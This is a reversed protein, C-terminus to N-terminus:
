SSPSLNRIITSLAQGIPKVHPQMMMSGHTGATHIVRIQGEMICGSWGLFPASDHSAEALFLYVPIPIRQASYMSAALRFIYSRIFVQRLQTDTSDILHLPLLSMRRVDALLSDFEITASKSILETFALGQEEGMGPELYGIDLQEMLMEERDDITVQDLEAIRKLSPHSTDLMGVFEVEEGAGILQLAIEYALLGGFSYGAIRYPGKPRATRIMRVMRRALAEVTRLQPEDTSQPPLGYVPIDPDLYQSLTRAYFIYGTCEHVLFLPSEPGGKRICIVEDSSSHDGCSKIREALLKPTPYEFLDTVLIILGTQALLNVVRLILLSHGGLEFFNDHRGVRELKLLEEWLAALTEEVEGVPAEYERMVYAGAEPEPLGKRDLKGNPTLPLSELRVYAAPVMYEPLKALLHTRLAEAGVGGEAQEASTYYAVLRKDGPREERAMVVAERVAEHELLRAEIERLEIRFGRIKIQHDNRGLFEIAGDALYRGVDGTRYMRAGPQETFPDAVFREATLGARNLYGHGLGEGGIYIEGRVGVPVPEGEEDLLYIRTNGIPRGIPIRMAGEEVEKVEHTTAFTTSESPGYCHVIREPPNARLIEKVARPDVVDGGTLLYRLRPIIMRLEEPYAGLLGAVLHLVTVEARLLQSGLAAPNLMTEKPIVVLSGGHLLTAWVELTAADFAPNSNFAVRDEANFDAYGCNIVLRLIARHPVMVGKPKGTSGSTYIVYGAQESDVALRLNGSPVESLRTEDLNVGRERLAAALPESSSTLIVRAECEEVIWVQREEPFTSDIPVYAAGCKLVALQAVVLSISRELMIGVRSGPVVGLLRLYNGLRNARENLERYSVKLEGDEVAIADPVKEVQEEFLEHVCRERPYEAETENWEYLVKRRERETLIDISRVRRKPERELAEVLSALGIHMYECIRKPEIPSQVQSTLRFGEGLDDVSLTCPYNTREEGSLVRIGEWARRQEESSETGEGASHRYNLLTSFLPSPAPVGSCRQALALSAHEHRLLEALQLHVGRVSEEVSEVGVRIRVPLTNIFLGMVQDAGQGGQMRGLLLTGFVVDDLGSVGALVRGWAVHFLSAASVGLRRARERVRRGLEADVELRAEEIETGDGRVDLMEFPATPEEVEGLLRRFYAEHEERSVGLRAQAVLNRFPLPKPLGDAKGLLHAEIEKEMVEQTGHDMTLHHQLETLLWRGNARDYALYVRQLPARRVDIRYRRPHFREYMQEAVDSGAADLEVEEVMLPAKRWVVQVPEPLGEWMVATRLIDHRDIVAQMAELYADLRARSDFSMQVGIVYPDSEGGMLHHFLIGEQLPALPYIDQINAAGGPVGSILGEMEEASLRVLPLMEPTIATCGSPIRNPPAEIADAQPGVASALEALTSTAFLARVDVQLGARRMREALTVALLSHGGLGFFNDHRGVGELKLLEEWLAALTEEVEGVPAEYERMVYAGAEPEPLGKRDLKGNPTLPLSELRVYAAPVMYEPLKALLHTRLAEAGAGGEAQEASTYYAVLRKDGPREERAMVVAERVAEHELLRAEIEGLEIRFGRIKVQGDIRGIFEIRGDSLYRGVDGTRYLRGRSEGGFKNPVFREATLDPRGCYGRALGAGAIYLEGKVGLPVPELEGDLLYLQMNAIPRGIAPKRNSGAECEGMSACVTSETPGYADFFRRGRAWREVIEASCAEGAAIVTELHSLEEEGIVALVSPPMTVVTIQDEQLVRRLGDGPMLNEQEHVYLSGGAILTSFVEWVSADFSLSAFQLVRSRDGLGFAEKEVVALNCLGRHQVMVGKPTGTSGSTYIVYALHEPTLGISGGDLNSEPQERWKPAESIDVVSLSASLETFVSQLHGQTLLAVPESDALMFRLREAPYAPDLPVYAGGAKLIALLSIVMELSREVCIAVRADPSVGLGRLYHALRNARRNLEAYSLYENEFVVAVADASKEVQEEFLEHVCRERPYEAETENWEYLVKRRERETLIDISRVRREPERELAEVLSALGIHMYECIRKPEIPSQVQSTLRFGEGLDDVSLTCPYNTREEGSLVRIGEWARRQEESSETGEGASHRYNLLASFLPSPAPVGSCRQALALSAHEHRLLEALQLHVGRVSEEVSEVGVRIRVPLTNIFLGMAQDAGQGGQMRGLLLTGFVVDDLGSVGALVRGWAVHFLSAASVGLRRARERVRRGLEADVELRAEEIETGDGRVDLMGFPATPEEVGGLLRRFYAEHEERSVGLRAQAVLNRFPLPRPLGDAKGLLHAEIEKEMVEQTGHDMTLHHQLETLLWRGNARDYALYVRQLPARRVDIRYRRPHFREYMQEAVDSGAADLEVEEVMLPAKRWVVQVPEPLGEWMVATRLIDHRDIVAQMAELYADLRARSDFSMQIGIVYPDSEGGMLHHFLIGEQLPALPYIDQINAAGGPVGSILGEMEEASLRVLPLMEPTIATCGSPIRNPPAEIADAQPGVASALEALTSTAFLARVDVQLGARRMREALTVALLSHGGLGFFNDHRGVGELKLLEEWLVALTEEVEGVPAEYERMVYAGTEPEPLGKRDLKGNPTLPLSELRVYAAPVMYEPLKALLHTRLAEAGAGGEAQEASTYYAVLRKDGPREERAMVVAERVAEHELLRAEIEGLEIRFGRVKVQHDVRGEFDIKGDPRYRGIDGTRYLREGDRGSLFHPIFREATQKPKGVYGRALGAGSVYLEGRVGVPVPELQEDLLYISTNAIGRGIPPKEKCSEDVRISTTVVTYETPGYNNVLTFPAAPREGSRLEEGGTLMTRLSTTEPWRESLALEALPTPLFSITIGEEVMWRILEPAEGRKAEEVIHLSAGSTLYPWIEWISADFSVGALQTAHDAASVDFERQHWCILNTLSRNSIGVGKPQGTSGSTYIVYALNEAVVGSEPEGENEESIKEWEEDLSIIQGMDDALMEKTLIVRVAADELMYRVRELPTQTDIPLYAGGAKLVGLVGVVMEVSRELRVGVVVEPGVGRRQLYHGLQNARRNLEAYSLYENEFVVAVADASKEVQEEFLEHVCRERPYEVETENWEYLVKRRERETLIDISMVRREPERELAEVLSALGIHMYECIRKPEIPSQVQSTLRFGEGLDDVSLTCPYNTREEGSLVRIGEWVRRQEESSETGEGANHRYNLLASFLPRPAPVGSCRQALALSAHEHRLLEALQLHVGRVSEEVSEVGVRIRVPLTNIFLGMAQDAGQGGQMRGLLLTGFVVDDLGSVGALVRGWAVHFLSAASVGLRRARERVRRGLEADVELGAEEIGTGDGRVNLMGFPATPEEVGGLLRRFYAKHEERSVGVWLDTDIGILEVLATKHAKLEDILLAELQDPKGPVVLEHGSRRLQVGRSRLEFLLEDITM